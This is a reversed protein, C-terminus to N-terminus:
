QGQTTDPAKKSANKDANYQILHENYLQQKEIIIKQDSILRENEENCESQLQKQDKKRPNFIKGRCKADYAAKRKALEDRLDNIAKKEAYLVDVKGQAEATVKQQQYATIDSKLRAYDDKFKQQREKIIKQNNILWDGEEKCENATQEQDKDDLNFTQGQCRTKYDAMKKAYEAKFANIADRETTLANEREHVEAEFNDTKISEDQAYIVFSFPFFVFLAAFLFFVSLKKM